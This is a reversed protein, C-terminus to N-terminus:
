PLLTLPNPYLFEVTAAGRYGVALALREASAKLDDAQAASLVPSSSEEIVKQNRRQVSCDREHLHLLAGHRDGM